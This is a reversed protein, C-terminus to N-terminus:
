CRQGHERYKFRKEFSADRGLYEPAHTQWPRAPVVPDHRSWPVQLAFLVFLFPTLDIAFTFAFTPLSNAELPALLDHLKMGQVFPEDRAGGRPLSALPSKAYLHITDTWQETRLRYRIHPIALYLLVPV